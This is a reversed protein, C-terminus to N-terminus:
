PLCAAQSLLDKHESSVAYIIGEGFFALFSFFLDLYAPKEVSAFCFYHLEAVTLHAQKYGSWHGPSCITCLKGGPKPLFKCYDEWVDTEPWLQSRPALPLM